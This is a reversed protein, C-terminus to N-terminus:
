EHNEWPEETLYDALARYERETLKDIARRVTEIEEHFAEVEDKWAQIEERYAEVVEKKTGKGSGECTQCTGILFGRVCTRGIGDCELCPWKHDRYFSRYLRYEELNAHPRNPKRM